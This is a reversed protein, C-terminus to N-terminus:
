QVIAAAQQYQGTRVNIFTLNTYGFTQELSFPGHILDSSCV